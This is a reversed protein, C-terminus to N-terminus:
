QTEWHISTIIYMMPRVRPLAFHLRLIMLLAELQLNGCKPTDFETPGKYNPIACEDAVNMLWM